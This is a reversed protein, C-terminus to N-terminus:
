YGFTRGLELALLHNWPDIVWEGPLRLARM